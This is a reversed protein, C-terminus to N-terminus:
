AEIQEARAFASVSLQSFTVNLDQAIATAQYRDLTTDIVTVVSQSKNNQRIIIKFGDM